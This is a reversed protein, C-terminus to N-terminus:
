STARKRRKAPTEVSAPVTRRDLWERHHRGQIGQRRASLRTVTIRGAAIERRGTAESFGAIRCWEIVPKVVLDPWFSDSSHSSM